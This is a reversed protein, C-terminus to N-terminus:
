TPPPDFALRVALDSADRYGEALAPRAVLLGVADPCFQTGSNALLVNMAGSRSRTQQYPRQSTMVHFADAVLLMRSEFPIEEGSLGDPYGSGDFHEHHHRVWPVVDECGAICSAIESSWIPHAQVKRYEEDTLRRPANLIHDPVLVKGVDHLMAAVYLRGVHDRTMEIESTMLRLVLAVGDSHGPFYNGKADVAMALSRVYETPRPPM